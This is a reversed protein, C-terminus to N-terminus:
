QNQNEQKALVELFAETRQAGATDGQAILLQQAKQLTLRAQQYDRQEAHLIGLNMYAEAFNPDIEIARNFDSLALTSQQRNRYVVGRNVYAKADNPNVKIAKSYDSLQVSSISYGKQELLKTNSTM